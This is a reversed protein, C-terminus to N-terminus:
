GHTTGAFETEPNPAAEYNREFVEPKCPYVEHDGLILWDGRSARVPGSKTYAYLCSGSYELLTPDQAWAPWANRTQGEWRFAEILRPKTRYQL